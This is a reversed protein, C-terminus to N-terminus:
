YRTPGGRNKIVERLRSPMSKVLKECFQPSITAWEEKLAKRLTILSSIECNQIKRKLHEWLHEIPNLDPSQAPTDIVKPCNYLRWLRCVYSNHKPDNDEYYCFHEMQMKRASQLLNEKLVTLHQYKDYKGNIFKLNGVGAASMCGWVLQSGGGHKVTCKLNKLNLETNPQRWVFNSGDSGFINYKSEDAFIVTKWFDYSRNIHAIAFRLRKQRNQKSIYPKKRPVRGHFNNKRLINRITEVSTVKGFRKEAQARLKVASLKPNIKMKRVIWREERDNFKRPRGSRGKKDIFGTKKFRTIIEHVTSKNVKVIEAIARIPKNDKFLDIIVKRVDSSIERTKRGM